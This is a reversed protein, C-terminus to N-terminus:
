RVLHHPRPRSERVAQSSGIPANVEDALGLKGCTFYSAAIIGAALLWGALVDSAWHYGLYVRSLGILLALTIASGTALWRWLPRRLRATLLLAALVYVLTGNTTHGSPFSFDRARDGILTVADPRPRSIAIKLLTVLSATAAVSSALIASAWLRRTQVWLGVIAVLAVAVVAPLSALDTTAVALASMTTGRLVEVRSAVWLDLAPTAGSVVVLVLITVFGAFAIGSTLLLSRDAITSTPRPQPDPM